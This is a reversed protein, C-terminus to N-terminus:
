MASHTDPTGHKKPLPSQHGRYAFRIRMSPQPTRVSIVIRAEREIHSALVPKWVPYHNDANYRHAFPLRMPNSVGALSWRVGMDTLRTLERMKREAVVTTRERSHTPYHAYPASNDWFTTARPYGILRRTFRQYAGGGQRIRAPRDRQTQRLAAHVREGGHRRACSCRLFM